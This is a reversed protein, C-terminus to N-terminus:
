RGRRQEDISRILEDAIRSGRFRLLERPPIFAVEKGFRGAERLTLTIRPPNAMTTNVNIINSLAIREEWGKNRVVLEDGDRWVEDALDFVLQKMIFWGFVGMAIPILFAGIPVRQKGFSAAVFGILVFGIIGYWLIPFLRKSFFTSRSSLREM